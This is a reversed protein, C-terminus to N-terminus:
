CGLIVDSRAISCVLIDARHLNTLDNVCHEREIRGPAGPAIAAARAAKARQRNSSCAQPKPELRSRAYRFSHSSLRPTHFSRGRCSSAECPALAKRVKAQEPYM